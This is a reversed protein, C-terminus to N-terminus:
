SVYVMFLEQVSWTKKKRKVEERLCSTFKRYREQDIEGDELPMLAYYKDYCYPSTCNNVCNMNEDPAFNSCEKSVCSKMKDKWIGEFYGQNQKNFGEAFSIAAILMLISVM